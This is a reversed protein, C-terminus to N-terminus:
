ITKTFCLLENCHMTPYRVETESKYPHAPHPKYFNPHLQPHHATTPPLNKVVKGRREKQINSESSYIM